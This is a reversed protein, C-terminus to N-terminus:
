WVIMDRGGQSDTMRLKLEEELELKEKKAAEIEKELEAEDMEMIELEKHYSSTAVKFQNFHELLQLQIFKLSDLSSEETTKDILGNFYNCYNQSFSQVLKEDITLSLKAVNDIEHPTLRNSRRSNLNNNSNQRSVPVSGSTQNPSNIQSM